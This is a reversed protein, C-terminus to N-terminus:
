KSESKPSNHTPKAVGAERAGHKGISTAPVLGAVARAHPAAPKVGM